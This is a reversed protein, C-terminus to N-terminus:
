KHDDLLGEKKLWLYMKAVAESLYKHQEICITDRHNHNTYRVDYTRDKIKQIQFWYDDDEMRLRFPLEELLEDITPAAYNYFDEKMTWRRHDEHSALFSTEHLSNPIPQNLIYKLSTSTLYYFGINDQTFGAEKLMKATELSVTKISM